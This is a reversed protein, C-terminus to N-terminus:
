VDFLVMKLTRLFDSNDKTCLVLFQDSITHHLCCEFYKIFQLSVGATCYSLSPPPRRKNMKLLMPEGASAPLHQTNLPNRPIGPFPVATVHCVRPKTARNGGARGRWRTAGPLQGGRLACPCQQPWGQPATCVPWEPHSSADLWSVRSRPSPRGERSSPMSLFIALFGIDARTEVDALRGTGRACGERSQFPFRWPACRQGGELSASHEAPPPRTVRVDLVLNTSMRSASTM